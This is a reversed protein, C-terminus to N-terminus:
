KKMQAIASDLVSTYDGLKPNNQFQNWIEGTKPNIIAVTSTKSKNAALFSALGLKKAKAESAQTTSKDSVDLVIFHVKDGYKQKLTSLTPAINQCGPCWSAYIEVMVPKTQLEKALPAGVTGRALQMESSNQPRPFAKAPLTTLSATFSGLLLLSVITKDLM